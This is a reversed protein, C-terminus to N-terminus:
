LESTLANAQISLGNFSGDKVGKWLYDGVETEPFQVWALWSGAKIVEVEGNRELNIENLSVFSQVFKMEETEFMHFLNAKMCHNNFSNCAEWVDAETYYDGHLDTVDDVSDQPELVVFLAMREEDNVSKTIPVSSASKEVKAEGLYKSCLDQVGKIFDLSM